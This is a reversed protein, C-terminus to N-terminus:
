TSVYFFYAFTFNYKFIIKNKCVKIKNHVNPRTKVRMIIYVIVFLNCKKELIFTFTKLM